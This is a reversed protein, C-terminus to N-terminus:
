SDIACVGPRTIFRVAIQVASFFDVNLYIYMCVVELKMAAASLHMIVGSFYM